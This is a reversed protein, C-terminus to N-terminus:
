SLVQCLIVPNGDRDTMECERRGHETDPADVKYGKGILRAHIADVDNVYVWLVVGGNRAAQKPHHQFMVETAGAKALCWILRGDEVHTDSVTFGLEDRYLSLAAEVDACSIMPVLRVARTFETKAPPM